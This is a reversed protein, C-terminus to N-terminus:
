RIRNALDAPLQRELMYAALTDMEEEEARAVTDMSAVISSMNAVVYGYFAGGLLMVVIAYQREASTIPKIDGFGVTAITTISWYMCLAYKTGLTANSWVLRDSGNLLLDTAWSPGNLEGGGHSYITGMDYDYLMQSYAHWWVMSDDARLSGIFAWFCSVFHALVQWFAWRCKGPVWTCVLNLM